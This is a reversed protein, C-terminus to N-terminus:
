VRTYYKQLFITFLILTKKNMLIFLEIYIDYEEPVMEGRDRLMKAFITDELISRDLVSKDMKTADKIM